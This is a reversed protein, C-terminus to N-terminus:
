RKAGPLTHRIGYRKEFFGAKAQKPRGLYTAVRIARSVGAPQPLVAQRAGLGLIRLSNAAYQWQGVLRRKLPINGQLVPKAPKASATRSSKLRSFLIGVLRAQFRTRNFFSAACHAAILHRLQPHSRTYDRLAALLGPGVMDTGGRTASSNHFARYCGLPRKMHYGAGRELLSLSIRYDLLIDQIPYAFLSRAERRYMCSSNFGTVGYALMADSLEIHAKNFLTRVLNGHDGIIYHMGAEDFAILPHWAVAYEPHADLVKAQAQLKGPLWFDDGDLHAVYEGRAANHVALYNEQGAGGLNRPHAIIRLQPYRLAVKKIVELTDDTSADDSVIVEFEFSTRQTLASLLAQEIYKGHNYTIICVSVKPSTTM